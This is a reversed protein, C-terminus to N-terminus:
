EHKDVGLQLSEIWNLLEDRGYKQALDSPSKINWKKTNVIVPRTKMYDAILLARSLGAQNDDVDHVVIPVVVNHLCRQIYQLWHKEPHFSVSPFGLGDLLAADKESELIFLYDLQPGKRTGDPNSIYKMNWFGLTNSGEVISFRKKKDETIHRFKLGKLYSKGDQLWWHSITYANKEEAFGFEYRDVDESTLGWQGFYSIAKQRGKIFWYEVQDTDLKLDSFNKKSPPSLKEEKERYTQTEELPYDISKLYDIADRHDMQKYETIFKISGGSKNCVRCWYTPQSSFAWCRFRDEGTKCFPCSSSYEGGDKKGAQKFKIGSEMEILMLLNM